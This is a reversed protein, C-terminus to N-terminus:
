KLLEKVAGQIDSPASDFLGASLGKALAPQALALRGGSLHYRAINMWAAKSGSAAAKQFASLSTATYGGSLLALANQSRGDDPYKAIADVLTLRAIRSTGARQRLLALSFWTDRSAKGDLHDELLLAETRSSPMDDIWPGQKELFALVKGASARRAPDAEWGWRENVRRFMPGDHEAEITRALCTDSLEKAKALLPQSVKDLEAQLAQREEPTVDITQTQRSVAEGFSQYLFPLACYSELTALTLAENALAELRKAGANINAALDPGSQLPSKEFAALSKKLAPWSNPEPTQPTSSPRGDLRALGRTVEAKVAPDRTCEAAIKFSGLAETARDLAEQMLALSLRARCLEDNATGGPATGESPHSLFARLLPEARRYDGADQYHSARPGAMRMLPEYDPQLRELRDAITLAQRTRGARNLRVFANFLAKEQHGKLGPEDALKLFLAASRADDTTEEALLFLTEERMKGLDGRYPALEPRRDQLLRTSWDYAHQWNKRDYYAVRLNKFARKGIDDAPDADFLKQSLTLGDQVRGSRLLVASELLAIPRAYKSKGYNKAYEACYEILETAQADPKRPDDSARDDLTHILTRLAEERVPEQLSKEFLKWHRQFAEAAEAERGKDHIFHAHRYLPEQSSPWEGFLSLYVADLTLVRDLMRRSEDPDATRKAEFIQLLAANRLSQEAIAAPHGAAQPTKLLAVPHSRMRKAIDVARDWDRLRVAGDIIAALHTLSGPAGPALAVLGEYLFASKDYQGIRDLERALDTIWDIPEGASFRRFYEMARRHDGVEAYVSILGTRSESKLSLSQGNQAASTAWIVAKELAMMSRSFGRTNYACWGIKYLAYGVVPADPFELIRRYLSEAEGFHNEDFKLDALIRLADPAYQGRPYQRVYRELFRSGGRTDGQDSLAYGVFFLASSHRDFDVHHEAIDTAIQISRRKLSEGADMEAKDSKIQALMMRASGLEWLLESQRFRLRLEQPLSGGRLIQETEEVARALLEALRRDHEEQKEPPVTLGSEILKKFETRLLERDELFTEALILRAQVSLRTLDSKRRSVLEKVLANAASQAQSEALALESALLTFVPFLRPDRQRLATLEQQISTLYSRLTRLRVDRDLDLKLADPLKTENGTTEYDAIAARLEKATAIFRTIQERAEETKGSDALILARLPQAQIAEFDRAEVSLDRAVKQAEEHRNLALLTWTKELTAVAAYRSGPAVKSYHLLAQEFDKAAYASRALALLSLEGARNTQSLAEGDFMVKLTVGWHSTIQSGIDRWFESSQSFFNAEFLRSFESSAAKYDKRLVRVCGLLYRALGFYRSAQSIQTLEQEATKLDRKEFAARGRAFRVEDRLYPAVSAPDIQEMKGPLLALPVRQQFLSVIEVLRDPGEPLSRWMEPTMRRLMLLGSNPLGLQFLSFAARLRASPASASRTNALVHAVQVADEWKGANVLLNLDQETNARTSALPYAAALVILSGLLASPNRLLRRSVPLRKKM